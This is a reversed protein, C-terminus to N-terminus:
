VTKPVWVACIPQCVDTATQKRVFRKANSLIIEFARKQLVNEFSKWFCTTLRKEFVPLYSWCHLHSPLLSSDDGFTNKTKYARFGEFKSRKMTGMMGKKNTSKNQLRMLFTSSYIRSSSHRCLLATFHATFHILFPEVGGSSWRSALEAM